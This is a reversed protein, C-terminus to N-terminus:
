VTVTTGGGSEFTLMRVVVALNNAARNKEGIKGGFGGPLQAYDQADRLTVRM